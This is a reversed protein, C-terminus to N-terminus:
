HAHGEGEDAEEEIDDESVSLLNKKLTGYKKKFRKVGRSNLM